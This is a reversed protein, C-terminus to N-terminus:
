DLKNHGYKVADKWNTIHTDVKTGDATLGKMYDHDKTYGNRSRKKLWADHGKPMKNIIDLEMSAVTASYIFMQAIPQGMAITFEGPRNLLYVIGFNGVNWWAEICAEMCSYPRNRENPIGKIYIFEGPNDTMPIFKAQVTFGGFTAHNDVEYHSSKEIATIKAAKNHDGDWSVKFTGPSLIYYGLSNAMTLPLCHRAHNATKTNDEWWGRMKRAQIPLLSKDYNDPLYIRIKSM